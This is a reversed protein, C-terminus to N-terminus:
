GGSIVSLIHIEDKNELMDENTIMNNNRIVVVTETNIELKKLLEAVSGEFKLQKKEETREIHVEM